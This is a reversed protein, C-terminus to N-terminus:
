TLKSYFFYSSPTKRYLLRQGFCCYTRNHIRDRHSHVKPDKRVMTRVRTYDKHGRALVRNRSHVWHIRVLRGLTNATHSTCRSPKLLIDSVHSGNGLFHLVLHTRQATRTHSAAPCISIKKPGLVFHRANTIFIEGVKPPHPHSIPTPSLPATLTNSPRPLEIFRKCFALRLRRSHREITIM